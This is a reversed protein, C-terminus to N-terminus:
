ILDQKFENILDDDCTLVTVTFTKKGSSFATISSSPPVVEHLKAIRVKRELL